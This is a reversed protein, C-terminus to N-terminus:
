PRRRAGGEGARPLIEPEPNALALILPRAAMKKVMDQKLVGARPCARPLYIDAGEIIEALSARMPGQPGTARRTTTWRRRAARLVGCGQHGLGLINEKKMGVPWWCTWPVGPRGAVREGVGRAEGQRDGQGVVRLGNVSRPAWSPDRHGHSTTRPLGPDEHRERLSGRSQLLVRAGQHGGPQHRRVHARALRHHGRAQGPDRRPRPEITSYTSAPSSRSSPRGQGGNFPSAPSRVVSTAWAWPGATGNPSWPSSTAGRPSAHPAEGPNAVIKRAPPLGGRPRTVRPGPERKANILSKPPRSRSKKRGGAPPPPIRLAAKECTTRPM